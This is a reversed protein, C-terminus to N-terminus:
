ELEDIPPYSIYNGFESRHFVADKELIRVELDHHLIDYDVFTFDKNYVRFVHDDGVRIIFGTIGLAPQTERKTKM